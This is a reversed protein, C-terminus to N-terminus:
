KMGLVINKVDEEYAWKFDNHWKLLVYAKFSKWDMDETFTIASYDGILSIYETGLPNIYINKTKPELSSEHWLSM